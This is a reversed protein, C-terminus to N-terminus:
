GWRGLSLDCYGTQFSKSFDLNEVWFGTEGAFYCKKIRYDFLLKLFTDLVTNEQIRQKKEEESIRLMMLLKENKRWKKTPVKKPRKCIGGQYKWMRVWEYIKFMEKKWLKTVSLPFNMKGSMTGNKLLLLPLDCCCTVCLAKNTLKYEPIRFSWLM